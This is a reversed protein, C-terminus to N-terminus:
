ITLVLMQDHCRTSNNQHVVLWPFQLQLLYMSQNIHWSENKFVFEMSRTMSSKVISYVQPCTIQWLHEIWIVSNKWSIEEAGKPSMCGWILVYSTIQLWQPMGPDPGVLKKSRAEQLDDGHPTMNCWIAFQSDCIIM